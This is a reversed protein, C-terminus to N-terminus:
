SLEVRQKEMWIKQVVRLLALSTAAWQQEERVWQPAGRTVAVANRPALCLQWFGSCKLNGRQLARTNVSTFFKRQTTEPPLLSLSSSLKWVSSQTHAKVLRSGRKGSAPSKGLYRRPVTRVGRQLIAAAGATDRCPKTDRQSVWERGHAKFSFCLEWSSGSDSLCGGTAASLLFFRSPQERGLLEGPPALAAGPTVPWGGPAESPSVPLSGAGSLLGQEDGARRAAPLSEM